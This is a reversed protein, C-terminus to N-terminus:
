QKTKTIMYTCALQINDSLGDVQQLNCVRHTLTYNLKLTDFFAFNHDSNQVLIYFLSIANTTIIIIILVLLSWKYDFIIIDYNRNSFM